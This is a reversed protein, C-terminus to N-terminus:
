DKVIMTFILDFLSFFYNSLSVWIKGKVGYMFILSNTVERIVNNLGPCLGGCTVIAANVTKPNFHLKRRPGARIFAKSQSRSGPKRVIDALICENVGILKNYHTKTAGTHSDDEFEDTTTGVGSLARIFTPANDPLPASNYNTGHMHNVLTAPAESKFQKSLHEVEWLYVEDITVDTLLTGVAKPVNGSKVTGASVSRVHELRYFAELKAEELAKQKSKRRSQLCRSLVMTAGIGGIISFTGIAFIATTGQRNSSSM